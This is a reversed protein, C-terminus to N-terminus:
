DGTVGFIFWEHPNGDRYTAFYGAAWIPALINWLKNLRKEVEGKSPQSTEFIMELTARRIPYAKRFEPKEAIGDIDLICHTGSEAQIKILDEITEPQPRSMWRDFEEKSYEYRPDRHWEKDAQFGEM